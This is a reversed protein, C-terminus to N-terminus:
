KGHKKRIRDLIRNVRRKVQYYRMVPKMGDRNPKGDGVIACVPTGGIAVVEAYKTRCAAIVAEHYDCGAEAHARFAIGMLAREEMPGYGGYKVEDLVLVVIGRDAALRYREDGGPSLNFAKLVTAEDAEACIIEVSTYEAM